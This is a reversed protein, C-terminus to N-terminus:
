KKSKKKDEVKKVSILPTKIKEYKANKEFIIGMRNEMKETIKKM